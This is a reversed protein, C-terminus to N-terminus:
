NLACLYLDEKACSSDVENIIKNIFFKAAIENEYIEEAYLIKRLSCDINAVDSYAIPCPNIRNIKNKKKKKVYISSILLPKSYQEKGLQRASSKGWEQEFSTKSPSIDNNIFYILAYLHKCDKNKNTACNCSTLERM